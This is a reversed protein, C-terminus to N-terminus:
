VKNDDSYYDDMVHELNQSVMKIIEPTKEKVKFICILRLVGFMPVIDAPLINIDTININSKQLARLLSKYTYTQTMVYGGSRVYTYKFTEDFFTFRSKYEAIFSGEILQRLDAGTNKFFGGAM